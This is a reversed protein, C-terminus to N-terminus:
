PPPIEYRCNIRALGTTDIRLTARTAVLSEESALGCQQGKIECDAATDLVRENPVLEPPLQTRCSISIFGNGCVKSSENTEVYDVAFSDPLDIRCQFGTKVEGLQAWAGTPLACGAIAAGLLLTVLRNVM